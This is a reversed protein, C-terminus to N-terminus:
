DTLPPIHASQPECLITRNGPPAEIELRTIEPLTNKINNYLWGPLDEHDKIGPLETITHHDLRAHIPAIAQKIDGFDMVWGMTPDLEKQLYLRAKYSHGYCKEKTKIASEMRMNRWIFFKEGDYHCGCNPTEQVSLSLTHPIQQWLWQAFLECTPNDLERIDNLCCYNMNQQLKKIEPTIKEVVCQLLYSHGHLKHCRHEPAVKPLYHAAELRMTVIHAAKGAHNILVAAGPASHLMLLNADETQEMFYRALTIDDSQPLIKNLYKNDLKKAVQNLQRAKTLMAAVKFQRAEPPEQQRAAHFCATALWYHKISM